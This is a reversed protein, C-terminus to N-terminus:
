IMLSQRYETCDIAIPCIRAEKLLPLNELKELPTCKAKIAFKERKLFTKKFVRKLNVILESWWQFRYRLLIKVMSTENTFKIHEFWDNREKM